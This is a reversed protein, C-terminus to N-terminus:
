YEPSVCAKKRVKTLSPKCAKCYPFNVLPKYMDDQPWLPANDLAHQLTAYSALQHTPHTVLGLLPVLFEHKPGEAAFHAFFQLDFRIKRKKSSDFGHVRIILMKAHGSGLCYKKPM